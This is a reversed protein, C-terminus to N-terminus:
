RTIAVWRGDTLTMVPTILALTGRTEGKRNRAEGVGAHDQILGAGLAQDALAVEEHQSRRGRRRVAHLATPDLLGLDTRDHLM